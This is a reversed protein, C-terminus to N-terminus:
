WFGWSGRLFYGEINFDGKRFQVGRRQRRMTRLIFIENQKKDMQDLAHPCSIRKGSVRGESFIKFYLVPIISM